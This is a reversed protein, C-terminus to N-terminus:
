SCSDMFDALQKATLGVGRVGDLRKAITGDEFMMATPYVTVSYHDGIEEQDDRVALFIGEGAEAHKQFSPLLSVCFPCWSAYFLVIVREHEKLMRSLDQENDVVPCNDKEKM